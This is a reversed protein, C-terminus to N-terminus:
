PPNKPFKITFCFRGPLATRPSPKAQYRRRWTARM